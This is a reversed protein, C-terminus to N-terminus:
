TAWPVPLSNVLRSTDTRPLYKGDYGLRHLLLLEGYETVLRWAETVLDQIRYPEGADKPHVLRGRLWTLVEPGDIVQNARADPQMEQARRTMAVLGAPIATDIKADCLLEQLHWTAAVAGTFKDKRDHHNESRRLPGLVYTVWSLYELAAHVLMIKAEITTGRHHAVILHRAVHRTVDHQDPDFWAGVFLEMFAKLDEGETKDWWQLHGFTPSCRWSAWQEWVRNGEADFGVPAVPAVWRCLAFSFGTQFATLAEAAESARFSSGDARRLEGVHTVVFVLSERMADWVKAHDQRVDLTLQWGASSCTWRGPWYYGDDVLYEGPYLPPLNTFHVIVRECVADPSGVDAHMIEGSARVVEREMRMLNRHAPMTIAAVHPREITLKVDNATVWGEAKTGSWRVRLDGALDVLIRGEWPGTSDVSIPGSYLEIPAGPDGFPYVPRIPPLAAEWPWQDDDGTTM